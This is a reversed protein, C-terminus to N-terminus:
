YFKETTPAQDSLLKWSKQVENRSNFSLVSGSTNYRRREKIAGSIIQYGKRPHIIMTVINEKAL